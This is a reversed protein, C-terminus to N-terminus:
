ARATYRGFFVIWLYGLIPIILAVSLGVRDAVAGPPPPDVLCAPVAADRLVMSGGTPLRPPWRHM